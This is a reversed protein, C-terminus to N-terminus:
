RSARSRRRRLLLQARPLLYPSSLFLSLPLSFICFGRTLEFQSILVFSGRSDGAYMVITMFNRATYNATAPASLYFPYAPSFPSSNSCVTLSSPPILPSLSSQPRRTQKSRGCIYLMPSPNVGSKLTSLLELDQAIGEKKPKLPSISKHHKKSTSVMCSYISTRNHLKEAKGSRRIM